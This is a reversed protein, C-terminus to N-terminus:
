DFGKSLTLRFSNPPVLEWDAGPPVKWGAAELTRRAERRRVGSYAEVVKGNEYVQVLGHSMELEAYGTM